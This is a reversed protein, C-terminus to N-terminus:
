ELHAYDGLPHLEAGHWGRPLKFRLPLLEQAFDQDKLLLPILYPAAVKLDYKASNFGLVVMPMLYKVLGEKIKILHDVWKRRQLAFRPDTQWREQQVLGTLEAVHEQPVQAMDCNAEEYLILLRHEVIKNVLSQFLDEYRQFLVKLMMSCM